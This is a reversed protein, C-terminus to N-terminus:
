EKKDKYNDDKGKHTIRYVLVATIGALAGLIYSPM